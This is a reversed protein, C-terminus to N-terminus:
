LFKGPGVVAKRCRNMQKNNKSLNDQCSKATDILGSVKGQKLLEIQVYTGKPGQQLGELQLM